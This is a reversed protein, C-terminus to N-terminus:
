LEPASARIGHGYAEVTGKERPRTDSMHKQGKTGAGGGERDRAKESGSNNGNAVSESAVENSASGGGGAPLCWSYKPPSEVTVSAASSVSSSASPSCRQKGEGVNKPM